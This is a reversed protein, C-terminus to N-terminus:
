EIFQQTIRALPVGYQEFLKIQAISTPATAQLLPRFFNDAFIYPIILSALPPLTM